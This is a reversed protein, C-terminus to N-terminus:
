GGKAVDTSRRGTVFAGCACTKIPPRGAREDMFAALVAMMDGGTSASLSKDRWCHERDDWFPCPEAAGPSKDVVDM